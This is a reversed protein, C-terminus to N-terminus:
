MPTASAPAIATPQTMSPDFVQMGHLKHMNKPDDLNGLPSNGMMKLDNSEDFHNGIFVRAYDFDLKTDTAANEGDCRYYFAEGNAVRDYIYRGHLKANKNNAEDATDDLNRITKTAFSRDAANKVENITFFRENGNKFPENDEETCSQVGACSIDELILINEPRKCVVGMLVRLMMRGSETSADTAVTSRPYQMILNGTEEGPVAIIGSMMDIELIVLVHDPDNPKSANSKEGLNKMTGSKHQLRLLPKSSEGKTYLLAIKRTRVLESKRSVPAAAGYVHSPPPIHVFVSANSAPISYGSELELSIPKGQPGSLGNIDYRMNEAKTLSMMEPTGHPLIMVTKASTSIDYATCKKAAALLNHLPYTFKQLAGFVMQNYFLSASKAPDTASGYQSRTLAVTLPTGENLMCQYGMKTLEYQLAAHQAAVKLDMERQFMDPKLCANINFDVDGGFRRLRVERVDEQVASVPAPAREPVESAVGGVVYQRRVYVVAETQLIPPFVLKIPDEYGALKSAVDVNLIKESRQIDLTQLQNLSSTQHPAGVRLPYDKNGANFGYQNIQSPYTQGFGTNGWTTGSLPLREEGTLNRGASM